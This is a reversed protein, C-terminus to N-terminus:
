LRACDGFWIWSSFMHWNQVSHECASVRLSFSRFTSGLVTHILM